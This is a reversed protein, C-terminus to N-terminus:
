PSTSNRGRQVVNVTLNGDLSAKVEAPVIKGLLTLFAQPNERSQKVLYDVGGAKDFAQSIAERIDRTLKNASGKPRGPGRAPLNPTSPHM